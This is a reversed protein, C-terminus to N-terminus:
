KHNTLKKKIKGIDDLIQRFNPRYMPNRHLCKEILQKFVKGKGNTPLPLQHHSNKGIEEIMTELPMDQYPVKENM